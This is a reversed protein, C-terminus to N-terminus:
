QVRTVNGVVFINLPPLGMQERAAMIERAHDEAEQVTIGLQKALQEMSYVPQGNDDYGYPHEPMLKLEKAMEEAIRKFSEPANLMIETFLAQGQSSRQEAETLDRFTQLLYHFVPNGKNM